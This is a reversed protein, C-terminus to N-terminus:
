LSVVGGLQSFVCVVLCFVGLHFFGWFGFWFFCSFLVFFGGGGVFNKVFTLSPLNFIETNWLSHFPLCSYINIPHDSQVFASCSFSMTFAIINILGYFHTIGKQSSVGGGGPTVRSLVAQTGTKQCLLFFFHTSSSLKINPWAFRQRM